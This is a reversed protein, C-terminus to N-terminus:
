VQISSDKHVTIYISPISGSDESLAALVRLWPVMEGAGVELVQLSFIKTYTLL